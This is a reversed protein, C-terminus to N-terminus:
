VAPQLDRGACSLEVQRSPACAVRLSQSEQFERKPAPMGEDSPALHERPPCTDRTLAAALNRREAIALAWRSSWVSQVAISANMDLRRDFCLIRRISRRALSKWALPALKRAM